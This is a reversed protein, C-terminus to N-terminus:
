RAQLSEKLNTGLFSSKCDAPESYNSVGLCRARLGQSAARAAGLPAHRHRQMWCMSPAPRIYRLMPSSPRRQQRVPPGGTMCCACWAVAPNAESLMRKCQFECFSLWWVCANDRKMNWTIVYVCLEPLLCLFIVPNDHLWLGYAPVQFLVGCILICAHWLVEFILVAKLCAGTPSSEAQQPEQASVYAQVPM